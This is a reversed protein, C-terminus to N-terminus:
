RATAAAPPASVTSPALTTAATPPSTTPSQLLRPPTPRMGALLTSNDRWLDNAGSMSLSDFNQTYSGSSITSIPIAPLQVGTVEISGDVLLKNTWSLGPALPPLALSAFAGAYNTANFLPFRDGTALTTPGLNSVTLTGGYTLTGTAAQVQDNTLTAVNKSIEMIVTGALSPANTFIMKGVSSGPILTGGSLISFGGALNGNGTLVANSSVL